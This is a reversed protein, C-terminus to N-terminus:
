RMLGEEMDGDEVMDEEEMDEEVEVVEVATDVGGETDEEEVMGVAGVVGEEMDKWSKEVLSFSSFLPSYSFYDM